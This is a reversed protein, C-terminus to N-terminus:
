GTRAFEGHLAEAAGCYAAHADEKTEYLGMSYRKGYVNIMARWKGTAAHWSVGKFGSTNNKFRRRNMASESSTAERLNARRNDLGNGNVHDVISTAESMLFRHLPQETRRGNVRVRRRVYLTRSRPSTIVHWPGAELVRALDEDDVLVTHVDGNRRVIDFSSM